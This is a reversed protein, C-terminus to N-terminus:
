EKKATRPLKDPAQINATLPAAASAATAAQVEARKPRPREKERMAEIPRPLPDPMTGEAAPELKYEQGVLLRAVVPDDMDVVMGAKGWVRDRQRIDSPYILVKLPLVRMPKM